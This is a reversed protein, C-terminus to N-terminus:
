IIHFNIHIKETVKQNNTPLPIEVIVVEIQYRNKLFELTTMVSTYGVNTILVKDGKNFRTSKLVANIGTSASEILVVDEKDANIYKSLKEITQNMLKPQKETFFLLPNEQVKSILKKHFNQVTNPVASYSGHNIHVGEPSLHFMKLKMEKGFKPISNKDKNQPKQPIM